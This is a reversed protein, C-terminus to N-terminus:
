RVEVPPDPLVWGIDSLWNREVATLVRGGHKWVGDINLAGGDTFHVQPVEGGSSNLAKDVRQVSRPRGAQRRAAKTSRIWHQKLHEESSLHRCLVIEGSQESIAEIMATQWATCSCPWSLAWGGIAHAVTIGRAATGAWLLRDRATEYLHRPNVTSDLLVVLKDRYRGRKLPEFAGARKLRNVLPGSEHLRRNAAM